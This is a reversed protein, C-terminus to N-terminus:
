LWVLPLRLPKFAYPALKLVLPEARRGLFTPGPAKVNPRLGFDGHNNDSSLRRASHRGLAASAAPTTSVQGARPRPIRFLPPLVYVRRISGSETRSPTPWGMERGASLAPTGNESRPTCPDWHVVNTNEPHIPRSSTVMAWKRRRATRLLNEAV